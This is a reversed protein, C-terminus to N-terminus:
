RTVSDTCFTRHGCQHHSHLSLDVLHLSLSQALHQTSLCQPSVSAKAPICCWMTKMKQSHTRQFSVACWVKDWVHDVCSKCRYLWKETVREFSASTNFAAQWDYYCGKANCSQCMQTWMSLILSVTSQSIIVFHLQRHMFVLLLLWSLITPVM